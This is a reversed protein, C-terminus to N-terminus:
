QTDSKETETDRDRLLLDDTTRQGWLFQRDPDTSSDVREEVIQWDDSPDSKTGTRSPLIYGTAYAV